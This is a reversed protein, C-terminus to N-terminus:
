IDSKSGSGSDCRMLAGAGSESLSAAGAGCRQEFYERSQGKLTLLACCYVHEMHILCCLFYYM